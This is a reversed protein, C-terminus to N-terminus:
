YLHKWKKVPTHQGEGLEGVVFHRVTAEEDNWFSHFLRPYNLWASGLMALLTVLWLMRSEPASSTSPAPTETKLLWPGALLLLLAGIIVVAGAVPLAVAMYDPYNGSEGQEHLLALAQKIQARQPSYFSLGLGGLALLVLVSAYYFPQTSISNKWRQWFSTGVM